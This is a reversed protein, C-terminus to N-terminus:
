SVEHFTVLGVYLGWNEEKKERRGAASIPFHSEVVNVNWTQREVRSMVMSFVDLRSLKKGKQQKEAGQVVVVIFIEVYAISVSYNSKKGGEGRKRGVLV